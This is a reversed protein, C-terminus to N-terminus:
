ARAELDGKLEPSKEDIKPNLKKKAMHTGKASLQLEITGRLTLHPFNM